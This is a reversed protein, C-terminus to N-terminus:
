AAVTFPHGLVLSRGACSSDDIRKFTLTKGSRKWLYTGPTPCAAPGTENSFTIQRGISAYRGKVVVKGNLAITYTLGNKVTMAWTGKFQKPATLKTTYKGPLSAGALAVSPLALLAIASAVLALRRM